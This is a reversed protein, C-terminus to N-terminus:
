RFVAAHARPSTADGTTAYPNKELKRGMRIICLTVCFGIYFYTGIIMPREGFPGTSNRSEATRGIRPRTKRRRRRFNRLFRPLQEAVGCVRGCHGTGDTSQMRVQVPSIEPCKRGTRGTAYLRHHTRQVLYPLPWDRGPRRSRMSATARPMWEATIRSAEASTKFDKACGALYSADDAITFASRSSLRM